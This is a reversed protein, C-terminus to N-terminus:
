GEGGASDADRREVADDESPEGLRPGGTTGAPPATAGATDAGGGSAAATGTPGTGIPARGGEERTGERDPDSKAPVGTGVAIDNDEV